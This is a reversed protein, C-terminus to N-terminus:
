IIHSITECPADCQECKPSSKVNMKWLRQNTPLINHILKLQFSRPKNEITIKFPLEYVASPTFTQERLYSETLPPCFSKEAFMLRAYKASVNGVTLQTVTPEDTHAQNGHLIANTGIKIPIAFFHIGLASCNFLITFTRFYAGPSINKM